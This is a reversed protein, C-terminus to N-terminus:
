AGPFRAFPETRSFEALLPGGIRAFDSRWAAIAAPDGILEALTTNGEAALTARIETILTDRVDKRGITYAVWGPLIGLLEDDAAKHITDVVKRTPLNLFTEFGTARLQGLREAGERSTLNDVLRDLIASLSSTVFSSAARKIQSEMQPAITGLVASGVSSALGAASRGLSGLLGSGGVSTLGQVFRDLTEQVIGRLMYRVSEHKTLQKLMARDLQLPEAARKRLLDTAEPTFADGIQDDRRKARQQERDLLPRLHSRVVREVNRPTLALDIHAVVRDPDVFRGVPQGILFDFFAGALDAATKEDLPQV